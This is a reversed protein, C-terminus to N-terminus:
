LKLAKRAVEFGFSCISRQAKLKDEFMGMHGSNDLMCFTCNPNMAAQAEIMEYPIISDHKGAVLLSNGKYEHLFHVRDERDRMALTYELLTRHPTQSAIQHVIEIAPNDKRYFLTPVFTNIFPQTGNSQVFEFVRDRNKRKEESDAYATSHFLGFGVIVDPKERAMSLTLYGGLSHGIVICQRIQLEDLWNLLQLAIADLSVRGEPLPSKGFGPLDPTIVRFDKSLEETFSSWIQHTECFGHLLVLPFGEGRESFFVNYM